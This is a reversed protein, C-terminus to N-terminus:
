KESFSANSVQKGDFSESSVDGNRDSNKLDEEEERLCSGFTKTWIYDLKHYPDFRYYESVASNFIYQLFASLVSYAILIYFGPGKASDIGFFQSGKNGAMAGIMKEFKFEICYVGIILVDVSAFAWAQNAFRCMTSNKVDFVLVLVQICHVILNCVACLFLYSIYMIWIGLKHKSGHLMFPSVMETAATYLNYSRTCGGPEEPRVSTFRVLEVSSGVLFLSFTTVLLILAFLKLGMSFKFVKGEHDSDRSHKFRLASLLPGTMEQRQGLGRHMHKEHLKTMWEFHVFEWLTAVLFAVIASRPEGKVLVPVGDAVTMEILVGVCLLIVIYIDILTYKGLRHLWKLIWTRQKETLKLYWTFVLIVNKAYPWIGSFAVVIVALLRADSTWATHIAKFFQVEYVVYFTDYDEPDIGEQQFECIEENSMFATSVEVDKDDSVNTTTPSFFPPLTVNVQLNPDLGSCNQFTADCPKNCSKCEPSFGDQQCIFACNNEFGCAPLVGFCAACPESYGGVEHFCESNCASDMFCPPSRFERACYNSLKTKKVFGISEWIAHDSETCAGTSSFSPEAAVAEDVREQNSVFVASLGVHAYVMLGANLVMSLTQWFGIRNGYVENLSIREECRPLHQLTEMPPTKDGNKEPDVKVIDSTRPPEITSHNTFSGSELAEDEDNGDNDAAEKM